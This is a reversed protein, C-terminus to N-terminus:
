VIELNDEPIYSTAVAFMDPLEVMVRRSRKVRIVVGEVGAFPGSKVRVKQGSRLTSSVHYLYVIDEFRAESIRIFDEMAKDPVISPERTVRNWIYSVYSRMGRSELVDDLTLRRSRAFCLNNVAPIDKRYVVGNRTGTRVTMPVFCEIGESILMEKVKMERSYTVRLPFWCQKRNRETADASVM